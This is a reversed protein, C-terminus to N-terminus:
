NAINDWLYKQYKRYNEAIDESEISFALLEKGWLVNVVKNGYIFIISPTGSFEKPLTKIEIFRKTTLKPSDHLILNVWRVKKKIRRKNYHKWYIPMETTIYWRGGIFYNVKYKLMDEFIAKIGEKGKFIEFNTPQKSSAYIQEMKPIIKEFKELEDKKKTIEEKIKSLPACNYYNKGKEKINTLFGKEMLKNITDYITRRELGLKKHIANVSSLGLNLVASYVRIEGKTLGLLELQKFEM